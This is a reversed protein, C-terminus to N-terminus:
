DDQGASESGLAEVQVSAGKAPRIRRIPLVVGPALRRALVLFGTHGQMRHNPRVALGEVHWPRAILEQAQPDTWMKSLRLDEVMRSMQTTTAVYVMLVGGPRMVTSVTPVCEWPALMDLVARDITGPAISEACDQVDGVTVSWNDPTGGFFNTVNKHAIKAFDERREYSHLYGQPGIARILSCSLAGSGVGAELVRAGPYIDAYGIIAAADKPYIVAAGRPMSLVFDSLLPRLALYVMNGTSTITTGEPKGIIDDHPVSGHNTFFHKGAELVITHKRDKVDTLQVRDGAELTATHGAQLAM